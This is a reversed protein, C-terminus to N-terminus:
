SPPDGSAASGLEEANPDSGEIWEVRDARGIEGCELCEWGLGYDEFMVLGRTEKSCKTCPGLVYGSIRYARIVVDGM